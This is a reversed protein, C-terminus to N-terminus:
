KVITFDVVAVDYSDFTDVGAREQIFDSPIFGEDLEDEETMETAAESKSQTKEEVVETDATGPQETVAQSSSPWQIVSCRFGTCPRISLRDMVFLEAKCALTCLLVIRAPCDPRPCAAGLRHYNM